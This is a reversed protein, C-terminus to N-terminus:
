PHITLLKLARDTNNTPLVLAIEPLPHLIQYEICWRRAATKLLSDCEQFIGKSMAFRGISSRVFVLEAAVRFMEAVFKLPDLSKTAFPEHQSFRARQILGASRRREEFDFRKVVGLRDDDAM